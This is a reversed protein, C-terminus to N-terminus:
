RQLEFGAVVFDHDFAAAIGIQHRRMLAFSVCDTFSLQQDAYKEFWGLAALEDEADPRLIRLAPSELMRRMREAAFEYTTRRALLTCTEDTVFNSTMLRYRGSALLQWIRLAEEHHQDRAMHRALFMGTDIFVAQM